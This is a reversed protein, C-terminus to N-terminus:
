KLFNLIDRHDNLFEETFLVSGYGNLHDTDSYWRYDQLFREDGTYDYYELNYKECIEQMDAYFKDMFSDSFSEYFCPLTPASVLVVQINRAQCKEIIRIFAEYQEGHSQDGSLEMFVSARRQGEANMADEAWGSLVQTPEGTLEGAVEQQLEFESKVDEKKMWDNVIKSVINERNGLVPIYKYQIADVLNWQKIYKSPLVQYYRTINTPYPKENPEQEYLTKFMVELIVTTNEDMRDVYYDFFAEDYVVTQSGLAMNVGNFEEYGSWNFASASHSAGFNVVDIHEPVESFKKMDNLNKYYDTNIYLVNLGLLLAMLISGMICVRVLFKKM